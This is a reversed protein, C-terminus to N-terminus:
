NVIVIKQKLEIDQNKNIATIYYIGNPLQVELRSSFTSNYVTQGLSNIIILNYTELSGTNINLIGNQQTVNIVTPNEPNIIIEGAGYIWMSRQRGDHNGCDDYLDIVTWVAHGDLIYTSDQFLSFPLVTPIQGQWDLCIQESDVRGEEEYLITGWQHVVTFKYSCAHANFCYYDNIGDGNPTFTNPLDGIFGFDASSKEWVISTQDTQGCISNALLDITVNSCCSINNTATNLSINFSNNSFDIGRTYTKIINQGDTNLYSMQVENVASNVNVTATLNYDDYNINTTSITPQTNPQDTYTVNIIDFAPLLTGCVSNTYHVIYTIVGSGSPPTFTPNLSHPNDLNDSPYWTAEIYTGQYANSGIQTPQSICDLDQLHQNLPPCLDRCPVTDTEFIAGPQVEFGPELYISNGATFITHSGALVTVPGDLQGAEPDVGSGAKIFDGAQFIELPYNFVTNDFYWNNRCLNNNVEVIRIDDWMVQTGGNEGGGISLYDYNDNPSFFLRVRYWAISDINNPDTTHGYVPIFNPIQANIIVENDGNQTDITGNSIGCQKPYDKFLIINGNGNSNQSSVFFELYYKKNYQLTSETKVVLHEGHGNGTFVWFDGSYDRPNPDPGAYQHHNGTFYLDPSGIANGDSIGCWFHKRTPVGWSDVYSWYKIIAEYYSLDNNDITDAKSVQGNNFFYHDLNTACVGSNLWQNTQVNEFSYNPVLNQCDVKFVLNILIFLLYYKM